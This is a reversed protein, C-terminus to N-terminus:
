CNQNKQTYYTPLGANHLTTAQSYLNAWYKWFYHELACRRTIIGSYLSPAWMQGQVVQERCTNGFFNWYDSGKKYQSWVLFGEVRLILGKIPSQKSIDTVQDSSIELKAKASTKQHVLQFFESAMTHMIQYVVRNCHLGPQRMM